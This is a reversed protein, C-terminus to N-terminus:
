DPRSSSLGALIRRQANSMPLDHVKNAPIWIARNRVRNLPNPGNIRADWVEFRVRRHSTMHHFTESLTADNLRFSTLIEARTAPRDAREITVAQWMGAWLGNPARQEMLVRGRSRVVAVSHFLDRRAPQGAPKPIRHQIAQRNAICARSLPCERCRPNAPTCITAGLEMLSENMAGPSTAAKVLQEARSWLWDERARDSERVDRGEVRLLVRQVNGDVLPEPDGFVMSAIAGATYRGVGPLRRLSRIDRPVRGNFEDVIMGAALHLNRARRYYGLGRWAALVAQEDARALRRVTPFLRIFHKYAEIVRSVQTQQLMAESVLSRYPDRRGLAPEIKRWPLDRAASEFWKTLAAAIRKDRAAAM